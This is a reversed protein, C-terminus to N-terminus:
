SVPSSGHSVGRRCCDQEAAVLAVYGGMSSGVLLVSDPESKLRELLREVRLDPDFTDTYDISDVDCGARRAIEALRQIKSGWPGSEKGHSFIVKM